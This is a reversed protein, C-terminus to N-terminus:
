RFMGSCVKQIPAVEPNITEFKRLTGNFVFFLAVAGIILIAIIIFITVQGRKENISYYNLM